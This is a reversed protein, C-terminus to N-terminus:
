RKRIVSLESRTNRGNTKTKTGVLFYSFFFLKATKRDNEVTKMGIQDKPNGDSFTGTKRPSIELPGERTFLLAIRRTISHSSLIVTRKTLSGVSISHNWETELFQAMKNQSYRTSRFWEMKTQDLTSYLPVAANTTQNTLWILTSKLLLLLALADWINAM